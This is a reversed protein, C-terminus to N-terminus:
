QLMEGRLEHGFAPGHLPEQARHHEGRREALGGGQVGGADGLVRVVEQRPPHIPAPEIELRHAVAHQADGAPRFALGAALREVQDRVEGRRAPRHEAEDVPLVQGRDEAGEVEGVGIVVDRFPVLRRGRLLREPHDVVREGAGQGVVQCRPRCAEGVRDRARLGEISGGQSSGGGRGLHRQGGVEEAIEARRRRGGRPLVPDAAPIGSPFDDMEGLHLRPDVVADGRLGLDGVRDVAEREERGFAPVGAVIVAM